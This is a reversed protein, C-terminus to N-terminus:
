RCTKPPIAPSHLTLHCKLTLECHRFEASKVANDYNHTGIIVVWRMEVGSMATMRCQYMDVRDGYSFSSQWTGLALKHKFPSDKMPVFQERSPIPRLM